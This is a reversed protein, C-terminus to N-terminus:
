KDLFNSHSIVELPYKKGAFYDKVMKKVDLDRLTKSDMNEIEKPSFWRIESIDDALPKKQKLSIRGLLIIKIPHHIDDLEKKVLSYIGLLNTPTFEFGTEEEVERKAAEILNEGLDVWGAPQSWKGKVSKQAEKVLLIKGKREIIAGAAGFTQTFCRKM